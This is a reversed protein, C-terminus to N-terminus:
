RPTRGRAQPRQGARRQTHRAQQQVAECRATRSSQGRPRPCGRGQHQHGGHRTLGAGRARDGAAGQQCPGASATLPMLTLGVGVTRRTTASHVRRTPLANPTRIQVRIRPTHQATSRRVDRVMERQRATLQDSPAIRIRIRRLMKSRQTGSAMVLRRRPILTATKSSLSNRPAFRTLTRRKSWPSVGQGAERQAAPLSFVRM